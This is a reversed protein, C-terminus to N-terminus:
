PAASGAIAAWSVSGSPGGFSSHFMLDSRSFLASTPTFPAIMDGIQIARVDQGGKQGAGVSAHGGPSQALTRAGSVGDQAALAALAQPLPTAAHVGQQGDSTGLYLGTVGAVVVVAATASLFYRKM